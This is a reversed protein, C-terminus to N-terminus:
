TPVVVFQGMMGQDEHQLIHCHYMYPTESDAYDVFRMLLPVTQRPPVMVTDKRGLESPGPTAGNRDLIQFQINHVHFLHTQGSTNV